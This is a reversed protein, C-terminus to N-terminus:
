SAKTFRWMSFSCAMRLKIQKFKVLCPGSLASKLCWSILEGNLILDLSLLRKGIAVFFIHIAMRTKNKRKSDSSPHLQKKWKVILEGLEVTNSKQPAGWARGGPLAWVSCTMTLKGNTSNNSASRADHQNTMNRDQQLTISSFAM